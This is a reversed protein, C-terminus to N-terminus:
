NKLPFCSYFFLSDIAPCTSGFYIILLGTDGGTSKLGFSCDTFDEIGVDGTFTM